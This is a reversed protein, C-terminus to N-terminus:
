VLMEWAKFFENLNKIYINATSKLGAQDPEGFPDAVGVTIFGANAATKLAYLSDEFVLTECAKTKLFEAATNYILPSSKGEGIEATTYIRSFYKFLGNRKLAAEECERPGATAAAIPINKKGIFDLLSDAGDKKLAECEYFEKLMKNIDALIKDTGDSLAYTNKLYEAGEEMSMSFLINDTNEHPTIGRAKLYRSGLNKWVKLTDLLVGDIDFIAGCIMKGGSEKGCM